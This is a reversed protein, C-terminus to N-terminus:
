PRGASTPEPPFVDISCLCLDDREWRCGSIGAAPAEIAGYSRRVDPTLERFIEEVAAAPFDNVLRGRLRFLPPGPAFFAEIRRCRGDAGFQATIGERAHPGDTMPFFIGSADDLDRCPGLGLAWVEDRTMGLLIPGISRGPVIDFPESM